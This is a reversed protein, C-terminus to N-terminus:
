RQPLLTATASVSIVVRPLGDPGIEVANQQHGAYSPATEGKGYSTAVDIVPGPTVGLHAALRRAKAVAQAGAELALEEAIREAQSSLLHWPASVRVGLQTMHVIVEDPHKFGAIQFSHSRQATPTDKSGLKDRGFLQSVGGSEYRTDYGKGLVVYARRVVKLGRKTLEGAIAAAGDRGAADTENGLQEKLTFSVQVIDAPVLRTVAATAKFGDAAWAGAAGAVSLGLVAAAVLRRM